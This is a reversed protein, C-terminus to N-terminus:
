FDHRLARKMFFPLFCVFVEQEYYDANQPIVLYPESGKMDVPIVTNTAKARITYNKARLHDM